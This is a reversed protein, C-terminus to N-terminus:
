RNTGDHLLRDYQKKFHACAEKSVPLKTGDTLIIETKTHAKICHYNVFYSKHIRLFPNKATTLQNEVESLKGNFSEIGNERCHILIKRGCSEFYVIDACPIKYEVKKYRYSFYFQRKCIRQNAELFIDQFRAGDIPKKMFAFVDLPFLDMIFKESESVYILLANEDTKRINEATSIGNSGRIQIALYIIDYRKGDAIYEELAIGSYFIDIEVPIYEKQSISILLTEIQNTITNDDDCIAITLLKDEKKRIHIRNTNSKYEM